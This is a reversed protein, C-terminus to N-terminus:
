WGNRHCRNFRYQLGYSTKISKLWIIGKPLWIDVNRVCICQPKFGPIGIPEDNRDM